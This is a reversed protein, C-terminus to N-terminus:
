ERRSPNAPLNKLIFGNFDSLAQTYARIAAHEIRAAKFAAARGDPHDLSLERQISLLAASEARVKEYAERAKILRALLESEIRALEEPSPNPM